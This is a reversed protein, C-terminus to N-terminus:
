TPSGMVGRRFQPFSHNIEFVHCIIDGGHLSCRGLLTIPIGSVGEGNLNFAEGTEIVVFERKVMTQKGNFDVPVCGWLCIKEFQVGVSLIQTDRPMEIFQRKEKMNLPFTWIVRDKHTM